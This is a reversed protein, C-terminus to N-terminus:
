MMPFASSSSTRSNECNCEAHVRSGLIYAQGRSCGCRRSSLWRFAWYRCCALIFPLSHFIEPCNVTMCIGPILLSFTSMRKRSQMDAPLDRFSLCRCSVIAIQKMHTVFSAFDGLDGSHLDDVHDGVPLRKAQSIWSHREGITPSQGTSKRIALFGGM